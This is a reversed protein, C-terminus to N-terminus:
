KVRFVTVEGNDFIKHLFHYKTLDGGSSKEQYGWYIYSIQNKNLFSQIVSPDITGSYLQNITAVASNYSPDNEFNAGFAIKNGSVAPLLFKAEYGTTIFSNELTNRKLFVWSEYQKITPYTFPSFSKFDSVEFVQNKLSLYSPPFTSLITLFYFTLLLFYFPYFM